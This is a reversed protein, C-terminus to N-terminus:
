SANRTSQPRNRHQRTWHSGCVEYSGLRGLYKPDETPSLHDLLGALDNEGRAEDAGEGASRALSAEVVSEIPGVGTIGDGGSEELALDARIQRGRVVLGVKGVDGGEGVDGVGGRRNGLKGAHTRGLTGLAACLAAPM